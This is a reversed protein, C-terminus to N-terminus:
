LKRSGRLHQVTISYYVAPDIVMAGAETSIFNNQQADGHLLTPAVDPGCLEPLRAMLKEVQRIVNSPINGSDIALRLGPWLRREAYFTAWNSASMNDQPLPGFYGQTELGFHEGEIQHIRALTQGIQRWCRPTREVAQVAELILINGGNVPIIGIPAPILVGARKALLRLGALEVTFQDFGNAAESFKAFVAYSSDSLIACPHCAFETMNRADTVMWRRGTHESVAQEVPMRLLDGALRVSSISSQMPQNKPKPAKEKRHRIHAHIRENARHFSTLKQQWRTQAEPDGGFTLANLFAIVDELKGEILNVGVPRTPQDPLSAYSSDFEHILRDIALMKTQPTAAQLYTQIFRQFSDVAGGPNLQQRKFSLHYDGWTIQWGCVPCTLVVDRPDGRTQPREILTMAGQRDCRACHVRGLQADKVKLIDRCRALLTFGVDDLLEEDLLGQADLEYLRRLKWKPVRRGWEIENRGISM